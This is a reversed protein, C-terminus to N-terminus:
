HFLVGVNQIYHMMHAKNTETRIKPQVTVEETTFNQRSVHQTYTDSMDTQTRAHTHSLLTIITSSSMLSGHVSVHQTCTDSMDTQTHTDNCLRQLCGPAQRWVRQQFSDVLHSM